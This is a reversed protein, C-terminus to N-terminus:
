DSTEEAQQQRKEENCQESLDEVSLAIEKWV